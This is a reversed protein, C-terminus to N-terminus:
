FSKWSFGGPHCVKPFSWAKANYILCNTEHDEEPHVGTNGDPSQPVMGNCCPHRLSLDASMPRHLGIFNLIDYKLKIPKQYDHIGSKSLDSKRYIIYNTLTCIEFTM